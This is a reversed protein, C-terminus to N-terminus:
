CPRMAAAEVLLPTQLKTCDVSRRRAADEATALRSKEFSRRAKMDGSRRRDMSRRRGDPASAGLASSPRSAAGGDSVSDCGESAETIRRLGGRAAGYDAQEWREGRSDACDPPRDADLAAYEADGWPAGVFMDENFSDEEEERAAPAALPKASVLEDLWDANAGDADSRNSCAAANAGETCTVTTRRRRAESGRESGASRSRAAPAFWDQPTQPTAGDAVTWRWAQAGGPALIPASQVRHM